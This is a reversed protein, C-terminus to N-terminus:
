NNMSNSELREDNLLVKTPFPMVYLPSNVALTYTDQPIGPTVSTDLPITRTPETRYAEEMNLRRLDFFRNYGM